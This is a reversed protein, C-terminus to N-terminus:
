ISSATVKPGSTRKSVQILRSVIVATSPASASPGVAKPPTHGAVAPAAGTATDGRVTSAPGTDSANSAAPSPSADHRPRLPVASLLRGNWPSAARVGAPAQSAGNVSGRETIEASTARNPAPRM